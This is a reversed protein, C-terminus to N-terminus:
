THFIVTHIMSRGHGHFVTLFHILDQFGHDTLIQEQAITLLGCKVQQHDRIGLHEMGLIQRCLDARRPKRKGLRFVHLFEQIDGGARDTYETQHVILFMLHLQQDIFLHQVAFIESAMGADIGGAEAHPRRIQDFLHKGGHFM